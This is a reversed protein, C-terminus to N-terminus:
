SVLFSPVNELFSGSFCALTDYGKQFFKSIGGEFYATIATYVPSAIYVPILQFFSYSFFIRFSLESFGQISVMCHETGYVKHKLISPFSLYVCGLYLSIKVPFVNRVTEKMKNWYIDGARYVGGYGSVELSANDFKKLLSIVCKGAEAAAEQLIDRAKEDGSASLESVIRAISAIRRINIPNSYVENVLQRPETVSFFKMLTALFQSEGSTRGDAIKAAEQLSRRGIYFAGGEDGILWGWGSTRDFRSGSKGYAIMGTGPAAIIGDERFFRCNYGAEGDNLLTYPLKLELKQIFTDIIETSKQSDKVGALAFTIKDIETKNIGAREVSNLVADRINTAANDTGINRFNSPGNAAVGLIKGDDDYCAALTKTAGGDVSVYAM